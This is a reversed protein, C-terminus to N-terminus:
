EGGGARKAKHDAITQALSGQIQSWLKDKDGTASRMGNIVERTKKSIFVRLQM